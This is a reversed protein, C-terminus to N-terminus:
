AERRAFRRQRLSRRYRRVRRAIRRVVYPVLHRLVYLTAGGIIALMVVMTAGPAFHVGALVAADMVICAVFMHFISNRLM